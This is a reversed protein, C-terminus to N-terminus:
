DNIERLKTQSRPLSKKITKPISRISKDYPCIGLKKKWEYLRCHKGERGEHHSEYRDNCPKDPFKCKTM